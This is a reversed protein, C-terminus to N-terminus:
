SDGDNEGLMEEAPENSAAAPAEAAASEEEAPEEAAAAPEEAAAAPEEKAAAPEEKAAAPEETAAAPAESTAAVECSWGIDRLKDLFAAAQAECYGAQNGARWLSHQGAGEGSKDYIVECPVPYGPDSYVVEVSRTLGANNCISPDAWIAPSCFTAVAIVVGITAGRNLSRNLDFHSNHNLPNEQKM